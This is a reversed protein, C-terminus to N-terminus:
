DASCVIFGTTFLSTLTLPKIGGMDVRMANFEYVFVCLQSQHEPVDSLKLVCASVRTQVCVCM